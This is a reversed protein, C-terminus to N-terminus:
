LKFQELSPFFTHFLTGKKTATSSTSLYEIMAPYLHSLPHDKVRRKFYSIIWDEFQSHFSRVLVPILHGGM